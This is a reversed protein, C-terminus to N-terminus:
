LGYFRGSTTKPCRERLDDSCKGVPIQHLCTPGFSRRLKLRCLQAVGLTLHGPIKSSRSYRTKLDVGGILRRLM